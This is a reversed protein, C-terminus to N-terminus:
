VPVNPSSRKGDDGAAGGSPNGPKQEDDWMSAMVSRVDDRMESRISELAAKLDETLAYPYLIAVAGWHGRLGRM